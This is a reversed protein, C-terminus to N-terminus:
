IYKWSMTTTSNVFPVFVASYPACTTVLCFNAAQSIWESAEKQLTAYPLLYPVYKRKFGAFFSDANSTSAFGAKSKWPLAITSAKEPVADSSIFNFVKQWCSGGGLVENAEPSCFPQADDDLFLWYDYEKGRLNEKRLAEEALLNRGETWTKSAIYITSLDFGKEKEIWDRPVEKDYSAYVMSLNADIGKLLLYWQHFKRTGGMVLVITDIDSDRRFKIKSPATESTPLMIKEMPASLTEEKWKSFRKEIPACQATAPKSIHKNLEKGTKFSGVLVGGLEGQIFYDLSDWDKCPYFDSPEDYYNEQLTKNINPITFGETVYTGRHKVNHARVYPVYVASVPMCTAMLCYIAGQSIWESAGYPLTAYPMVYPVYNRKFAAFFADANSASTFGFTFEISMIICSAKEPIEDSSIFNFIKQWCSGKGLFNGAEKHCVPEVDDDLFLWYDFEKERIEEKRLATQALLNRGQTWSKSPIFITQCDFEENSECLYNPVKEDYSAFVLSLHGDIAKLHQYWRKFTSAEGM